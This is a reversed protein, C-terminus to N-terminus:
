LRRLGGPSTRRAAIASAVSDKGARRGAVVWFERVRKKPPNRDAVTRFFEIEDATMPLAYAARLVARWGNWTPGRFWPAFLKPHGMASVIDISPKAKVADRTTINKAARTV